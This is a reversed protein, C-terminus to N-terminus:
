TEVRVERWPHRLEEDRHSTIPLDTETHTTIEIETTKLIGLYSHLPHEEEQRQLHGMGSDSQGFQALQTASGENMRHYEDVAASNPAIRPWPRQRHESPRRRPSASWSASMKLRSERRGRNFMIPIAPACFVVITSTAEGLGWLLYQSYAYSKDDNLSLDVASAVRGAACACLILGVSFIFSVGIKQRISMGLTWIIRHPISLLLIDFFLHFTTISLNFAEINQCNGPIWRRWIKERPTCIVNIAIITAIYLCTNVSLMICCIWYFLNRTSRPIFIHTWELIIAAKVFAVSVCWLITTIVYEYLFSELNRLRLNWLHVFFGAGSTVRALVCTGAVYFVFGLIGMYDELKVKGACFVRSYVRLVSFATSLVMCTAIVAVALKNDNPPDELNQVSNAPPRAAPMNLTQQTQEPSLPGTSEM